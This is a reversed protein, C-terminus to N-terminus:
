ARLVAGYQAELEALIRDLSKKIQEDSLTENPSRFKLSFAVSKKNEGISDSVYVDFLEAEELYKGGNKEITEIMRGTEVERDVVLSLDREIAPFRPIETFKTTGKEDIGASLDLVAITVRKTIDFNEAIKPHIEGIQGVVTGGIYMLAKRGPHMYSEGGGAFKPTKGYLEYVLNEVDGKLTFYDGAKESLAMILHTKEQPLKGNLPVQEPLFVRGIEYLRLDDNKRNLNLAVTQLMSPLLTTRMYGRDDGLPNIIKVAKRLESDEEAGIKDLDQMGMFSYTLCEFYGKGTLYQRIIDKERDPDSVEDKMLAIKGQNEEIRDYGYIRAVEESIDAKGDIDIRFRPIRCVLSGDKLETDIYVRRLCDLMTETDLSTGLRNNIYEPTVEVTKESLDENLVDITGGVIEGAGLIEVLQCARKLAYESVTADLGKSFRMSSETAIGLERSTKRINGYAFKASEFVVTDTDAQIESDEGGMVGAIGIPGVGDCILLNNVSLDHDKGDLTRITEGKEATRVIIRDERIQKRDFAHMPQGTELMVFNTIDVINNIPRLGAAILRQKMWRPSEAIKVNRVMKAMYRTCLEPARVEVSIYNKIDDNDEHFEPVPLDIECDLSAATERANGIVSLCDSRNAGVEFELVTDDWMMVERIDHGIMSEDEKLILIGYVEAGPYDSEKLCLEEGSCLMGNSEVGRLKGKKIHMGNPLYSDHLAVPVLAGEFVNDAGTVIQVDEGTGINIQCIQLKDADPHKELKEIKGVVVNVCDERPPYVNEVANGTMILKDVVEKLDKDIKVYDNLWRYPVKM